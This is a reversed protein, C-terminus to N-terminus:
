LHLRSKCRCPDRGCAPCVGQALRRAIKTNFAHSMSGPDCRYTYCHPCLDYSPNGNLKIGRPKRAKPSYM